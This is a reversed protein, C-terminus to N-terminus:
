VQVLVAVCFLPKEPWIRIFNLNRYNRKCLYALIVLAKNVHGSRCYLKLWAIFNQKHRWLWSNRRWLTTSYGPTALKASMMLTTNTNLLLIKLSEFFDFTNSIRYWFAIQIQIKQYLLIQSYTRTMDRVHKLTFGCEITAQIDRFEKSSATAFRCNLHSCRSDFGSGSLEYVFVWNNPWITSHENVFYITRRPELGTATM